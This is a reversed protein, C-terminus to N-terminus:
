EFGNDIIALKVTFLIYSSGQVLILQYLEFASAAFSVM